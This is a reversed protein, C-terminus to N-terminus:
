DRLRARDVFAQVRSPDNRWGYRSTFQEPTLAERGDDTEVIYLLQDAIGNSGAFHGDPSIALKRGEALAVLTVEIRQDDHRSVCITGGLCGWALRTRDPSWAVSMIESANRYEQVTAASAPESLRVFGQADGSALFEGDHSWAVARVLVDHKVLGMQNGTFASWLQASKGAWDVAGAVLGDDPSWDVCLVQGRSQGSAVLMDTMTDWVRMGRVGGAALRSGDHSWALSWVPGPEFTFTHLPEWTSTDWVKVIGAVSGAALRHGSPSWAIARVESDVELQKTVVGTTPDGIRLDDDWKWWAALQGNPSWSALSGSEVTNPIETAQHWTRAILDGHFSRPASDGHLWQVSNVSQGAGVIRHSEGDTEGDWFLLYGESGVATVYEDNPTWRVVPFWPGKTVATEQKKIVDWVRVKKDMEAVAIRDGDSSWAVSCVDTDPGDWSELLTGQQADWIKVTGDAGGSALKTGDPSWDVSWVRSKHEALLHEVKRTAANWIRIEGAGSGTAFHTNSRWSICRISRKGVDAFESAAGGESDFLQLTNVGGILMLRGDPSWELTHIRKGTELSREIRGSASDWFVVTGLEDASVLRGSVPSYALATVGAPQGILIRQLQYTKWDWLRVTGDCGGSALFQGDPSYDIARIPGRHGITELTWSRVGGIAAPQRVLAVPSLPSVSQSPTEIDGVLAKSPPKESQWARIGFTAGVLIVLLALLCISWRWTTRRHGLSEKPSETNQHTTYDARELLTLLATGSTFPQIANAVVAPTEYRDGPPKSLMQEVLAVLGLPMDARQDGIPPPPLEAHAKMKKLRSDFEDSAFPPSGVLLFYLTCGLSYIDARVDVSGSADWQEPAMYDLTGLIHSSETLASRDSADEVLKALGFDVLKVCGDAALMLNSPKVDRHILGREHAHQLGAAAQRVIECADAVPLPGLQRVLTAMDIGEVYEMVLFPVDNEERADLARVINPHDLKGVAQMERHFRTAAAADLRHDALLKVAVIRDLRRHRARYVQGMGGHGLRDLLEYDDLEARPRDAVVEECSLAPDSTAVDSAVRSPTMQRALELAEVLAAEQSVGSDSDVSRLGNLLTDGSRELTELTARCQACTELHLEFESMLEDSVDGAVYAKLHDESPCDSSAM